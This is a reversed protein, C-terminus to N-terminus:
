DYKIKINEALYIVKYARNLKEENLRPTSWVNKAKALVVNEFNNSKILFYRSNKFLHKLDPRNITEIVEKKIESDNSILLENDNAHIELSEGM